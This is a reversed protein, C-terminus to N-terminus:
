YSDIEGGMNEDEYLKKPNGKVIIEGGMNAEGDFEESCFVKVIAGMSAEVRANKATLEYAKVVSGMNADINITETVGEIRNNAGMNTDITIRKTKVKLEVLGGMTSDIYLDQSVVEEQAKVVAGTSVDISEISTYPIKVKVSWHNEQMAEWLSKTRIKILLRNKEQEIIIDDEDIGKLSFEMETASSKYLTVDVGRAVKLEDFPELQVKFSQGFSTLSIFIFLASLLKKM